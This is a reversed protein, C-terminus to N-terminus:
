WLPTVQKAWQNHVIYRIDKITDSDLGVDPNVLFIRDKDLNHGDEDLHRGSWPDDLIIYQTVEPHNGLWTQIELARNSEKQFFGHPSFYEPTVPDSHYVVNVGNIELVEQVLELPLVKAWSTSLVTKFQHVDMLSNFFHIFLPDAKWYTIWGKHDIKGPYPQFSEMEMLIHTEPFVPGDLDLFFVNSM